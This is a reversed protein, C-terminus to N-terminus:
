KKGEFLKDWANRGSKQPQYVGWNILTDKFEDFSRIEQWKFGGMLVYDKFRKQNETPKGNGFKFEMFGVPMGKKSILYDAVGARLGMRKLKAGNAKTRAGENPIHIMDFPRKIVRDFWDVCAICLEDESNVACGNVFTLHKVRAFAKYEAVTMRKFIDQKM